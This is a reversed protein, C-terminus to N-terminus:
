EALWTDTEQNMPKITKVNVFWTQPRETEFTLVLPANKAALALRPDLTSTSAVGPRIQQSNPRM